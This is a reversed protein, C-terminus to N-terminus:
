LKSNIYSNAPSNAFGEDDEGQCGSDRRNSQMNFKGFTMLSSVSKSPGLLPEKPSCVNELQISVSSEEPNTNFTAFNFAPRAPEKPKSWWRFPNFRLFFPLKKSKAKRFNIKSLRFGSNLVDAHEEGLKIFQAPTDLCPNLLKPANAIYEVMESPLPRDKPDPTWCSKM